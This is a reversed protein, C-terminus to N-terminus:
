VRYQTTPLGFRNCEIITNYVTHLKYTYIFHISGVCYTYNDNTSITRSNHITDQKLLKCIIVVVRSISKKECLIDLTYFFM